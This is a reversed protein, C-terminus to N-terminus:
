LSSILKKCNDEIDGKFVTSGAVLINAGADTIQRANDFNVGGDVEIDIDKNCKSVKERLDKIKDLSEPIFSQGGFGPEVSMVLILDVLDNEIFEDLVEPPTAPKISIGAKAGFNRIIKACGKPDRTAEYHYTVISSGAKVFRELYREPKDIMLHTDLVADTNKSVSELVPLGFSINPVFIGDMVDFHILKAGGSLCKEIDPTLLSLNASLISPAIIKEM